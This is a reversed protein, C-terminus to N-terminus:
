PPRPFEDAFPPVGFINRAGYTRSSTSLYDLPHEHLGINVYFGISCYKGITGSGVMTGDNIYSYDGIHVGSLIETRPGVRVEHGLVADAAIRASFIHRGPYRARVSVLRLYEKAEEPIADLLRM